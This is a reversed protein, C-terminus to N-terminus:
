RDVCHVYSLISLIHASLFPDLSHAGILASLFPGLSYASLLVSLFPDLSHASNLASLFPGLSHASVSFSVEFEPAIWHTCRYRRTSLPVRKLMSSIAGRLQAVPDSARV